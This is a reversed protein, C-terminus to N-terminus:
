QLMKRQKRDDVIMVYLDGFWTKPTYYYRIYKALEMWDIFSKRELCAIRHKCWKESDSLIKVKHRDGAVYGKLRDIAKMYYNMTAIKNDRSLEDHGTATNGHRRYYITEKEMLYLSDTVLAYRWLLADHPYEEFWQKKIGDFFSRRFCYVCGPRMVCLFKNTFPFRKCKIVNNHVKQLHMTTSYNSVLLNIDGNCSITKSMCEIKDPYWIDDQDCTFIVDGETMDITKMFNKRWGLNVPNIYHKWNQIGHKKIFGDILDNTADTSADDCIIVEDPQLSQWLLSEMQQEIYLEGNYSTMAVSIKM